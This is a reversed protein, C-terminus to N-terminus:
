ADSRGATRHLAAQNPSMTPDIARARARLARILKDYGKEEFLDVWQWRRLREPADCEELKLPILFITGDPQEDAVDLAHKIERQVYGAKSISTRSLCVIVVHSTRVAATIERHWDHGPLLEEEDLWPALGEARL